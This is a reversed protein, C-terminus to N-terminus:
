PQAPPNPKKLLEERVQNEEPTLEAPPNPKNLLEQRAIEEPDAPIVIPVEVKSTQELYGWLMVGGIIIVGIAAVLARRHHPHSVDASLFDQSM